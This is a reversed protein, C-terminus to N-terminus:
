LMMFILCCIHISFVSTSLLFWGEGGEEGLLRSHIIGVLGAAVGGGGLM